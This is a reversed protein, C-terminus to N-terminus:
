DVLELEEEKCYYLKHELGGFEDLTKKHEEVIYIDLGNINSIDVATGIINNKKIKVYDFENIKKKM